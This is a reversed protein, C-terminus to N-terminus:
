KTKPCSQTASVVVKGAFSADLDGITIASIKMDKMANGAIEDYKETCNFLGSVIFDPKELKAMTSRWIDAMAINTDSNLTAELAIQLDREARSGQWLAFVSPDAANGCSELCTAIFHIPLSKVPVNISALFFAAFTMENVTPLKPWNVFARLDFTCDKNVELRMSTIASGATTVGVNCGDVKYLRGGDGVGAVPGVKIAPGTTAELYSVEAGLMEYKFISSLKSSTEQKAALKQTGVSNSMEPTSRPSTSGDKRMLAWVSAAAIAAGILFSCVVVTANHKNIM